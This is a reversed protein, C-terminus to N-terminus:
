EKGSLGAFCEHALQELFGALWFFGAGLARDICVVSCNVIAIKAIVVATQYLRVVCLSCVVLAKVMAQRSVVVVGKHGEFSRRGRQVLFRCLLYSVAVLQALILPLCNIGGIIAALVHHIGLRDLGQTHTHKQGGTIVLSSYPM